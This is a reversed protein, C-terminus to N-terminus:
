KERQFSQVVHKIMGVALDELILLLLLYYDALILKAHHHVESLYQMFERIWVNRIRLVLMKAQFVLCLILLVVQVQILFKWILLIKQFKMSKRVKSIIEALKGVQIQAFEYTNPIDHPFKSESLEDVLYYLYDIDQKRQHGVINYTLVTASILAFQRDYIQLLKSAIPRDEMYDTIAGCAAIFVSHDPLKKKFANYVLVSTCESTDHILKVKVKKLKAIIKSDLHHHDIYTISIRKKRLETLLEVFSDTNQKNLGLDCIFLTKLKEDNRLTELVDTMGPYDVLTTDGGFAQKILAASSIGDADEMHSICLTKTRKSKITKSSSKRVSSKKSKTSM